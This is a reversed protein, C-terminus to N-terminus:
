KSALVGGEADTQIIHCTKLHKVMENTNVLTRCFRCIFYDGRDAPSRIGTRLKSVTSMNNAESWAKGCTPIKFVRPTSHRAKYKCKLIISLAVDFNRPKLSCSVHVVKGTNSTYVFM